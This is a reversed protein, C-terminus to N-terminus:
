SDIKEITWRACPNFMKVRKNVGADSLGSQAPAPVAYLEGPDSNDVESLPLFRRRESNVDDM